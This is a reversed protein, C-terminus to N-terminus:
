FVRIESKDPAQKVKALLIGHMALERHSAIIIPNLGIVALGVEYERSYALFHMKLDAGNQRRTDEAPILGAGSNKVSQAM